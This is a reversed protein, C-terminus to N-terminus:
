HGGTIIDSDVIESDVILSITKTIHEINDLIKSLQLTTKTLAEIRARQNSNEEILLVAQSRLQRITEKDTM